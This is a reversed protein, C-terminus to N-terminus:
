KRLFIMRVEGPPHFSMLSACSYPRTGSLASYMPPPGSLIRTFHPKWVLPGPHCKHTPVFIASETSAYVAEVGRGRGGPGWVFCSQM